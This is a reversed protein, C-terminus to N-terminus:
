IINKFQIPIQDLILYIENESFGSECISKMKIPFNPLENFKQLFDSIIDSYNDVINLSEVSKNSYKSFEELFQEFNFISRSVRTIFDNYVSKFEKEISICNEKTLNKTYYKNLFNKISHRLDKNEKQPIYNVGEFEKELSEKTKHNEFFNVIDDNKLFWERRYVLYDNFKGHIIKEQEPTAESITYIVKCFPNHLYYTDFRKEKVDDETYGIKLYIKEENNEDFGRSEIVYIM